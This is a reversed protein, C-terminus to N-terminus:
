QSITDGHTNGRNQNTMDAEICYCLYDSAFHELGAAMQRHQRLFFNYAMVAPIAVAIGLATAILVEGIPGAVVELRANGNATIDKLAHMIGWVTGFLGIFPSTSGITALWGLGSEMRDKEKQLQQRLAREMLEHWITLQHSAQGNNIQARRYTQKGALFLRGAQSKQSQEDTIPAADADADADADALMGQTQLMTLLRRNRQRDILFEGAKFIVISWTVVSLFGLTYLAADVISTESFIM